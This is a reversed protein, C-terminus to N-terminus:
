QTRPHTAISGVNEVVDNKVHVNVQRLDHNHRIKLIMEVKLHKPIQYIKRENKVAHCYVAVNAREKVKEVYHVYNPLVVAPARVPQVLANLIPLVNKRPPVNRHHVLQNNYQCRIIHTHIDVLVVLEWAVELVLVWEVVVQIVARVHHM